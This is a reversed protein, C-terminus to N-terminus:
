SPKLTVLLVGATILLVGAWQQASLSEDYLVWAVFAILMYFMSGSIAFAVGVKERTLVLIWLVYGVVQLSLSAYVWPSSAARLMFTPLAQLDAPSGIVEIARKLCMQSAVTNITVIAILLKIFM